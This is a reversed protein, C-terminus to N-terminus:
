RLDALTYKVNNLTRMSNLLVDYPEYRNNIIGKNSDNNSPDSSPDTPDNDQYRFWHWGVCNPMSLLRLCFNQYFYGRDQQTKVLWGAGTINPLGSDEAKTYFETIMFPKTLGRWLDAHKESIMWNGYYNISIIDQYQDAAKLVYLNSKAAEHLRSGIYMHNPDIQKIAKSVIAYYHDAVWGNFQQQLNLPISTTDFGYTKKWKSALQFAASGEDNIALFEKLLNMQFPLENDSFHGVLWPDNTMHAVANCKDLCYKLFDDEFAFALVPWNKKSSRKEQQAFGALLSLQTTYPIGKQPYAANYARIASTDSWSGLMNFGGQDMQQRVAKMWAIPDDKYTRTFFSKQLPSGGQRVSNLSVALFLNGSPDVIVPRGNRKDVRFFGTAKLPVNELGGYKNTKPATTPTAIFKTSYTKWESYQINRNKDRSWEKTWVLVSDIKVQAYGLHLSLACIFIMFTKRIM